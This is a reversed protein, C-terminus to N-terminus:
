AKSIKKGSEIVTIYVAGKKHDTRLFYKRGEDSHLINMNWVMSKAANLERPTGRYEMISNVKIKRLEDFTIKM